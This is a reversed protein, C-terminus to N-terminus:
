GRWIYRKDLYRETNAEQLSLSLLKPNLAENKDAM